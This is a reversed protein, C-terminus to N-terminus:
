LPSINVSSDLSGNGDTDYLRFMVTSLSFFRDLQPMVARNEAAKSTFKLLGNNAPSAAAGQRRLVAKIEETGFGSRQLQKCRFTAVEFPGWNGFADGHFGVAGADLSSISKQVDCLRSPLM